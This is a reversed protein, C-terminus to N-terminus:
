QRCWKVELITQSKSSCPFDAYIKSGKWYVHENEKGSIKVIFLRLESESYTIKTNKITSYQASFDLAM